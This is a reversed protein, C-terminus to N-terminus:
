IVIFKVQMRKTVGELQSAEMRMRQAIRLVPPVAIGNAGTVGSPKPLSYEALKSNGSVYHMQIAASDNKLGLLGQWMVPHRRLLEMLTDDSNSVSSSGTQIPTPSNSPSPNSLPQETTVHKTSSASTTSPVADSSRAKHTSTSPPAASASDQSSSSVSFGNRGLQRSDNQTSKSKSGHGSKNFPPPPPPPPPPTSEGSPLRKKPKVEDYNGGNSHRGSDTHKANKVRSHEGDRETSRTRKRSVREVPVPSKARRDERYDRPVKETNERVNKEVVLSKLKVSTKKVKEERGPKTDTSQKEVRSEYHAGETVGDSDLQGSLTSEPPVEVPVTVDPSKKHKRRKKGEKHKIKKTVKESSREENRSRRVKEEKVNSVKVNIEEGSVKGEEASAGEVFDKKPKRKISADKEEGDSHGYAKEYSTPYFNPKEEDERVETPRKRLSRDRRERRDASQKEAIEMDDESQGDYRGKVHGRKDEGRRKDGDRRKDGGRRHSDDRPEMSSERSGRDKGSDVPWLESHEGRSYFREGDSETNGEHRGSDRHHRRRPPEQRRDQERERARERERERERERTVNYERLEQGFDDSEYGGGGGSGRYYDDYHGRGRGRGGDSFSSGRDYGHDYSHYKSGRSDQKM